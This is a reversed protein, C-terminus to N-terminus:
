HMVSKHLRTDIYKTYSHIEYFGGIVKLLQSALLNYSLETASESYM